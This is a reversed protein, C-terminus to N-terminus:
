RGLFADRVLLRVKPLTEAQLAAADVELIEAVTAVIRGLPMEGDCAGLIGALATDAEVARRFGRQQRLVIHNLGAGGPTATSEEVIDDALVWRQELLDADSFRQELDVAERQAQIAPGIPQEVGYPWDEIQVQPTARGAKHLVIWGMGVAAIGLREFYDLWEGYRKTYDPSGSLGADALWLEIYEYPDLTERQIVLADCGTPEMWEALRDAWGKRFNPEVSARDKPHAWNALVQLTGGDALLEAGRQVVHQVLGDAEWGGERYTLRDADPGPPSMVYPPNTVILDFQEGEVPEYMSGLRLDVDVQNLAFTLRALEVARPNLDTAVVTDAHRALHLSQVGCGTGLDLARAVPRRVTLQALTSSAPSVGLVFDPRMPAVTSDLGPSLDSVVWGAAGDDSAYPRIDIEARVTSGGQSLVEAAILADVLGPLAVDLDGRPVPRQLPWLLTLTSLPDRRGQLARVAAVTSNRGLARHAEEGILDVVADVTYDCDILAARLARCTNDSLM